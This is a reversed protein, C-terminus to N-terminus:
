WRRARDARCGCGPCARTAAPRVIMWASLGTLAAHHACRLRRGERHHADACGASRAPAAAHLTGTAPRAAARVAFWGCAVALVAAQWAPFRPTVWLAAVMLVTMVVHGADDVRTAPRTDPGGAVCRRLCFGGAAVFAVTLLTRLLLPM